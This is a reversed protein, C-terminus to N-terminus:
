RRPELCQRILTGAPDAIMAVVRPGNTAAMIFVFLLAIAGCATLIVRSVGIEDAIAQARAQRTM